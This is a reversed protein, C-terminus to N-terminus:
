KNLGWLTVRNQYNENIIKEVDPLGAAEMDKILTNLINLAEESSTANIM